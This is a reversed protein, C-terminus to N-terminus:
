PRKGGILLRFLLWRGFLPAVSNEFFLSLVTSVGQFVTSGVRMAPRHSFRHLWRKIRRSKRGRPEGATKPTWSRKEPNRWFGRCPPKDGSLLLTGGKAPFRCVLATCPCRQRFLHREVKYRSVSKVYVGVAKLNSSRHTSSHGGSHTSRYLRQSEHRDAGPLIGGDEAAPSGERRRQPTM